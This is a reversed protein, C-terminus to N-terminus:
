INFRKIRTIPTEISTYVAARGIQNLQYYTNHTTYTLFTTTNHMCVYMSGVGVCGIIKSRFTPKKERLSSAGLIVMPIGDNSVCLM